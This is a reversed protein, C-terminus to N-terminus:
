PPTSCSSGHVLRVDMRSLHFTIVNRACAGFPKCSLSSLIVTFSIQYVYDLLSSLNEQQKQILRQCYSYRQYRPFVLFANFFSGQVLMLVSSVKHLAYLESREGWM